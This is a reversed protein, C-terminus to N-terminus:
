YYVNFFQKKCLLRVTTGSGTEKIYLFFFSFTTRQRAELNSVKGLGEDLWGGSSGWANSRESGGGGIGMWRRLAIWVRRRAGGGGTEGGAAAAASSFFVLGAM